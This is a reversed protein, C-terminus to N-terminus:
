CIVKGAKKRLMARVTCAAFFWVAAVEAAAFGPWSFHINYDAQDIFQGASCFLGVTLLAAAVFGMWDLPGPKVAINRADLVLIVLAFLLMTLSVLIPAIVPAAWTLPILFLIDWDMLSAPWNILVKLWVYFFIDWLAFIMMFYAARQRRNEGFLSCATVILVLTAAERGVETLLLGRDLEDASFVKLPFDFGNPHFIERLYVVVASEIYAFAIGFVAVLILRFILRKIM